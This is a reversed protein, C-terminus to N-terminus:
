SLCGEDYRRLFEEVALAHWVTSWFVDLPRGALKDFAVRFRAPEVLGLDALRSVRALDDFTGFGGAGAVMEVLAPDMYAKWPRFTVEDPLVGRMSARMLGRLYGGSLLAMPPLTAVFRLLTDDFLPETRRLGTAVEQQSRIRAMEALFPM